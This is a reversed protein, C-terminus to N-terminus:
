EGDKGTHFERLKRTAREASQTAFHRYLAEGYPCTEAHLAWIRCQSANDTEGILDFAEASAKLSTAATM